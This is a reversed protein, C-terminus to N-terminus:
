SDIKNSKVNDEYIKNTEITIVTKTTSINDPYAIKITDEANKPLQIIVGEETRYKMYEPSPYAKDFKFVEGLIDEKKLNKEFAMLVEPKYSAGFAAQIFEEAHFDDQNKILNNFTSTVQSLFSSDLTDKFIKTTNVFAHKVKDTLDRDTYKRFVGLFSKFFTTVHTPNSKDTLMAIPENGSLDIIASKQLASRNKSFTNSIEQLFAENDKYSYTLVNENDYKIVIYKSIDEIVARIFIMAGQKIRNDKDESPKHFKQALTRSVEDFRMPNREIEKLCDLFPSGETFLLKNGNVVECIRERFFKDHVGIPTKNMLIPEEADHHVIHFIFNSILIDDITIKDKKIAM